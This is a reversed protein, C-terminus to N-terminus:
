AHRPRRVQLAGEALSGYLGALPRDPRLRDLPQTVLADREPLRDARDEADRGARAVQVLGLALRPDTLEPLALHGAEAARGLFRLLGPAAGECSVPNPLACTRGVHGREDPIQIERRTLAASELPIDVNRAVLRHKARQPELFRQAGPILESRV